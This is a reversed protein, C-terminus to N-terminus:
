QTGLRKGHGLLWRGPPEGGWGSRLSVPHPSLTSHESGYGWCQFHPRSGLLCALHRTFSRSAPAGPRSPPGCCLQPTLGVRPAHAPGHPAPVSWLVVCVGGVQFTWCGLPWVQGSPSRLSSSQVARGPGSPSPLLFFRCASAPPLCTTCLRLAPQHGLCLGDPLCPAPPPRGGLHEHETPKRPATPFSCHEAGTPPISRVYCVSCPCISREPDTAENLQAGAAHRVIRWTRPQPPPLFSTLSARKPSKLFPDLPTRLHALM